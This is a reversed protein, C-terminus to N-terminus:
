LSARLRMLANVLEDAKNQVLKLDESDGWGNEMGDNVIRTTREKITKILRLIKRTYSDILM